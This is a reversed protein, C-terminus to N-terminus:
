RNEMLGLKVRSLVFPLAIQSAPVAVSLGLGVGRLWKPGPRTIQATNQATISAAEATVASAEAAREVAGAVQPAAKAIQGMTYRASGVLALTQSQLCGAYNECDWLWRNAYALRDPLAQYTSMTRVAEQVAPRVEALVEARTAQLEARATERTETIEHVAAARTAQVERRLDRRLAAIEELAGRRLEAVEAGLQQTLAARIQAERRLELALL